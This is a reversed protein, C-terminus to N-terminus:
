NIRFLTRLVSCSGVLNLQFKNGAVEAEEISSSDDSTSGSEYPSNIKDEEDKM